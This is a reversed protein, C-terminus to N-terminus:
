VWWQVRHQCSSTRGQEALDPATKRRDLPRSFMGGSRRSLRPPPRIRPHFPDCCRNHHDLQRIRGMLDTSAEHSGYGCQACGRRGEGLAMDRAADVDGCWGESTVLEEGLRDGASVTSRTRAPRRGSSWQRSCRHDSWRVSHEGLRTSVLKTLERIAAAEVV